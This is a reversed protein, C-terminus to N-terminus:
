PLRRNWIIKTETQTEIKRDASSNTLLGSKFQRQEISMTHACDATDVVSGVIVWASFPSSKTQTAEAYPSAAVARRGM